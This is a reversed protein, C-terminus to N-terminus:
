GLSLSLFCRDSLGLAAPRWEGTSCFGGFRKCSKTKWQLHDKACTKNGNARPGPSVTSCSHLYHMYPHVTDAGPGQVSSLPFSSFFSQLPYAVHSSSCYAKLWQLPLPLHQVSTKCHKDLSRIAPSNLTTTKVICILLLSWTQRWIQLM